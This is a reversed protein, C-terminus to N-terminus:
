SCILEKKDYVETILGFCEDIDDDEHVAKM